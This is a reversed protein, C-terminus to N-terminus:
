KGPKGFMGYLFLPTMEHLLKASSEPDEALNSEVNMGKRFIETFSLITETSLEPNIYGQRRGEDFFDDICQRMIVLYESELFQRIEPDDSTTALVFDGHLKGSLSSKFSLVNQLKEEFSQEAHLVKQYDELTRIYWNKIAERVLAEKSGFQNYVTAPSVGAKQAIDNVPVKKIGRAQFLELAAQLIREKNREARREPGKM